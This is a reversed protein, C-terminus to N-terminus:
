GERRYVGYKNKCRRWQFPMIKREKTYQNIESTKDVIDNVEAAVSETNDNISSANESINQM